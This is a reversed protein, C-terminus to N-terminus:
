SAGGRFKLRYAIARRIRYLGKPLVARLCVKWFAATFAIKPYAQFTSVLQSVTAGRNWYRIYAPHDGVYMAAEYVGHVARLYRKDLGPVLDWYRQVVQVVEQIAATIGSQTKASEHVRFRVVPVDLYSVPAYQLLRILWDLDFLYRFGEDLPGGSVYWSRPVFMGPQHWSSNGNWPEVMNRFTVNSQRILEYPAEGDRFNEVNGLLIHDQHRVHLDSFKQFVSPRYVDDSNLWAVLDGSARAFGKNIAHAQGHDPESAWHTLWRAYKRIIEVSGDTSGGDIVIYELDPYGQLLVSRITEEIFRGYNYNPTVISIRPWLRGDPLV